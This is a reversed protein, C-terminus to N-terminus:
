RGLRQNRKRTTVVALRALAADKGSVLRALLTGADVHDIWRLARLAHTRVDVETDAVGKAMLKVLAADGPSGFARGATYYAYRRVHIDTHGTLGDLVGRTTLDPYFSLFTIARLRTYTTRKDNKAARILRAQADKFLRDLAARSPPVIDIANLLAEFKEDASDKGATPTGNGDSVGAMAPTAFCSLAVICLLQKWM